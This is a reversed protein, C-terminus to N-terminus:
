DYGLGFVNMLFAWRDTAEEIAKTTPKGAGHGAKTDIRILIPNSGTQVYQLAAAFKYSHAPFVRDDHDGTTILTPPYETDSRLSHYPSYTRLSAFETPDDPSGYDSVWAWGITFKHFRLMDLVGVACLCAGFLEPRQTLCAAVLLGGNSGGGIALRETTTYDNAILWEAAGIFDDFVNQKQLKSGAKHWPQGYEGGGRLNVQVYIGGIEMWALNPASFLPTRAINFGGYGYLYTPNTGDRSIGRKHTIFMPVRTGDKSKCFVQETIFDDPDFAISPERFVESNGTELDHRYITGPMNFTSFSYFTEHDTQRGSFGGVTGLAPLELEQIHEGEKNFIHVRSHAHHLYTAIFKQNILRVSQLTDTSESLIERESTAGEEDVNVAIVRSLPANLDTKIYLLPGDNGIIHYNADFETFLACIPNETKNDESQTLKQYFIANERRTGQRVDIILYRGDETVFGGFNWDKHDPREYILLDESQDTGVRHYYLKHFYNASKFEAGQKPADYRSYYFGNGEKNWASGSRSLGYALFRGDQSVAYSSLAVTGDDSLQNPDLLLHPEQELSETWYLVSQNQLGDNRSFFYRDGRKFPLGFKEYNWLVTLREYLADRHPIRELYAQTLKNQEQIWVATEASDIEELWRYPDSIPEGHLIDVHDVRKSDPYTLLSDSDNLNM